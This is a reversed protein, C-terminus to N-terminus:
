NIKKGWSFSVHSNLTTFNLCIHISALFGLSEWVCAGLLHWLFSVGPGTSLLPPSEDKNVAWAPLGWPCFHSGCGSRDQSVAPRSPKLEGSGLMLNGGAVWTKEKIVLFVM